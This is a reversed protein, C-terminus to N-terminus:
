LSSTVRGFRSVPWGEVRPVQVTKQGECPDRLLKWILRNEPAVQLEGLGGTVGVLELPGSVQSGSRAWGVPACSLPRTGELRVCLSRGDLRGEAGILGVRTEAPFSWESEAESRLPLKRGFLLRVQLGLLPRTRGVMTQRTRQRIVPLPLMWHEGGM